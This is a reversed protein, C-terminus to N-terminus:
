VSYGVEPYAFDPLKPDFTKFQYLIKYCKGINPFPYVKTEVGSEVVDLPAIIHAFNFLIPKIDYKDQHTGEQLEDFIVDTVNLIVDEFYPVPVGANSLPSEQEYITMRVDPYFDSPVAIRNAIPLELIAHIMTSTDRFFDRVVQM